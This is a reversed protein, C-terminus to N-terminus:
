QIGKRLADIEVMQKNTFLGSYRAQMGISNTHTAGKVQAYSPTNYIRTKSNKKKSDLCLLKAVEKFVTDYNSVLAEYRLFTMQPKLVESWKTRLQSYESYVSIFDDVSSLNIESQKLCSICIDAPDRDLWIINACPFLVNIFALYLGNFPMKDVIIQGSHTSGIYANLDDIMAARLNEIFDPSQKVLWPVVPAGKLKTSLQQYHRKVFHTEEMITCQSFEALKSELLTTGSRPFGVIFAFSPIDNKPTPVDVPMVSADVKANEVDWKFANVFDNQQATNKHKILQNVVETHDSNAELWKIREYFVADNRFSNHELQMLCTDAKNLDGVRRALKAHTLLVLENSSDEAHGLVMLASPLDSNAELMNAIFCADEAAITSDIKEFVEYLLADGRHLMLECFALNARISLDRSKPANKKSTRFFTSANVFRKEDVECLAAYFALEFPLDDATIFPSYLSSAEAYFRLHYLAVVIKGTITLKTASLRPQLLQICEYFQGTEILADALKLLCDENSPSCNLADFYYKIALGIKGQEKFCDGLSIMAPLYGANMLLAQKFQSVAEEYHGSCQYLLGHNFPVDPDTPFKKELKLLISQAEAERKLNILSKAHLIASCLDENDRKISQKIAENFNGENYFILAQEYITSM